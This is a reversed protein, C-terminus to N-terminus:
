KNTEHQIVNNEALTEHILRDLAKVARSRYDGVPYELALNVFYGTSGISLYEMDPNRFVWSRYTLALGLGSQAMSLAVPATLETNKAIPLKGCADYLSQATTGLITTRQTLLFEYDAANSFDVWRRGNPLTNAHSLIPHEKRAAILVEDRMISSYTHGVTSSGTIVLAMDLSGASLLERLQYTNHEHIIVDIGPYQQRFKPLVRPILHPAWVSSIGFEIRGSILNKIDSLEGKMQRYQRLMLRANAAFIEGSPTLRAGASTRMFLKVDLEAEYRTLFQSLSSQAMYLKEAAKSISGAEAIALVYELEKMEM